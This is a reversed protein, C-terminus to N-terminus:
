PSAFAQALEVILRVGYGTGGEDLMYDPRKRQLYGPGAMDVHAWPGEGAFEQLFMAALVPGGERLESVNKLDAFTSDIYRRYRRHLPFRSGLDGSVITAQEIRAAFTEDNCFWGAILDGLAVSMAGTLTAFDILHTAGTSRAHHLADALALRGEADTNVVEITKGNSARLIDGPRYASGSQMNESAAVVAVTRVPLGLEAIAAIGELVAAGGAMDGKMDQMRLAPKLSVGGSDFTIAKGVLGLVVDASAGPPDYRVVILQPEQASGAAVAAFSGMGQENIWDRGHHEAAVHDFTFSSAHAALASPTLDNPPRNVLDRAAAVHRSVTSQRVALEHLEDPADLALAVEPRGAYREKELGADYAGFATGEVVARVQEAPSSALEMDIQWAVTGGERRLARAAAAAATRIADADVHGGTGADLGEPVHRVEGLPLDPDLRVARDGAAAPRLEVRM